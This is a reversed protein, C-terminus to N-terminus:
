GPLSVEPSLVINELIKDLAYAPFLVLVLLGGRLGWLLSALTLLRESM